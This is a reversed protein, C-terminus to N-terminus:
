RLNFSLEVAVRTAVAKGLRRGPDFRWRRVANIAEQDLGFQSDLSRVINVRGVSGDALVLIDLEVMGEVQARMADPTYNPKVERVLRPWSVGNGPRWGEDGTGPGDKEGLQSGDGPGIGPGRGGDAGPGAGPGRSPSEIPRLEAVAGVIEQLGSQVPMAPIDLRLAQEAVRPKQQDLQVPAAVPVTLADRGVLQAPTAPTREDKKGGGGPDGGGPELTPTWVLPIAEPPKPDSSPSVPARGIILIVLFGVAAHAVLSIALSGAGTDRPSVRIEGAPALFRYGPDLIIQPNGHKEQQSNPLAQDAM